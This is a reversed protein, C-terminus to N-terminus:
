GSFRHFINYQHLCAFYQGDQIASCLETDINRKANCKISYQSNVTPTLNFDM